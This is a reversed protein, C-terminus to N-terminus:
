YGGNSSAGSLDAVDMAPHDMNWDCGYTIDLGESAFRHVSPLDRRSWDAPTTCNLVLNALSAVGADQLTVDRRSTILNDLSQEDFAGQGRLTLSNLRPVLRNTHNFTLCGLLDDDIFHSHNSTFRIDLSVLSPMLTLYDVLNSPPFPIDILKLTTLHLSSREFFGSLAQALRSSHTSLEPFRFELTQLSPLTLSSFFTKVYKDGLYWYSVILTKLRSPCVERPVLEMPLRDRPARRRNMHLHCTRINKAQQLTYLTIMSGDLRCDQLQEWPLKITFPNLVWELWIGTLQPAEECFDITSTTNRCSIRLKKLSHLHGRVPSLVSNSDSRLTFHVQEWRHAQPILTDLALDIDASALDFRVDLPSGKSRNVWLDIVPTSGSIKTWFQPTELVITRWRSCIRMLSLHSVPSPLEPCPDEVDIYEVFIAVLLEPPFSRLPSIAARHMGIMRRVDAIQKVLGATAKQLLLMKKEASDIIIRSQAVEYNTPPRNTTMLESQPPPFKTSPISSGALTLCSTCSCKQCPM